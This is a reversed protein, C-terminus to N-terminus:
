IDLEVIQRFGSVQCTTGSRARLEDREKCIMGDASKAVLFGSYFDRAQCGKKLEATFMRNDRMILLLKRGSVPQVGVIGSAPLCKGYKREIYRSGGSEADAEFMMAPM